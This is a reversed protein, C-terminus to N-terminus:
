TKRTRDFLDRIEGDSKGKTEPVYLSVFIVSVLAFFAFIGFVYGQDWYKNMYPFGEAVAFGAFWNFMFAVSMMKDPLIEAVYLWMVAGLSFGYVACYGLVLYQLYDSHDEEVFSIVCFAILVLLILTSGINMLSRRGTKNIVLAAFIVSLFNIGGVAM